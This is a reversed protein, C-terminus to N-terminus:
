NKAYIVVWDIQLNGYVTPIPCGNLCAETQIVYHMPTNPIRHSTRGIVTGDLIFTVESPGWEISATHWATYRATTTFADQDGSVTADQHHMYANMTGNLAGEPFDIEGDRPSINSDPWLLWATKWGALPDSKFRITYKGYLQGARSSTRGPLVPLLAASMQRGGEVHLYKNLVGNKVSVVKSPNYGSNRGNKGATDPWGDLYVDWKADYATGPFSGVPVDTRFDETFIQKWGPLDGVPMAEGSPGGSTPTPTITVTPTPSVTATPLQSNLTLVLEPIFSSERSQIELADGAVQDIGFSIFGGSKSRVAETVDKEVWINTNGAGATFTGVVSSLSPRNSYTLGKETWTTTDVLKITQTAASDAGSDTGVHVRLKASLLNSSTLASLNFKLYAIYITPSGDIWMFPSSGFNTSTQNSSVYSDAVARLSATVPVRTPTPSTTITPTVAKGYNTLWITFDIGDVKGDANFDGDTSGNQTTKGYNSLWVSFDIGDVKGDGNADGPLSNAAYAEQITIEPFVSITRISLIILLFICFFLFFPAKSSIIEM